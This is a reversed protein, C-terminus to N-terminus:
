VKEEVLQSITLYTAEKGDQGTGEVDEDGNKIANRYTVVDDGRGNRVFSVEAYTPEEGAGFSTYGESSQGRHRDQKDVTAPQSQITSYLAVQNQDPVIQPQKTQKRNRQGERNIRNYVGEANESSHVAQENVTPYTAEESQNGPDHDAEGGIVIPIEEAVDRNRDKRVKLIIVIALLILLLGGVGGAAGIFPIKPDPKGCNNKASATSNFSLKIGNESCNHYEIDPKCYIKCGEGYCYEICKGCDEGTRRDECIKEGTIQSCTYNGPVPECKTDCKQEPYITSTNRVTQAEQDM